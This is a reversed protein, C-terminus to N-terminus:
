DDQEQLQRAARGRALLNLLVPHDNFLGPGQTIETIAKQYYRTFQEPYAKELRAAEQENEEAPHVSVAEPYEVWQCLFRAGLLRKGKRVYIPKVRIGIQVKNLEKIPKDIINVRFDGTRPYLAPDLDFLVRLDDLTKDFYWTDRPNGQKGAFGSYSLALEYFRIAYKSQLKGLDLLALKTYARKMTKIAAALEPNFHMIITDWGCSATPSATIIAKTFWTYVLYDGNPLPIKILTKACETVAAQIYKKTEAGEKSKEIGLALIFDAVPFSIARQDDQQPLLAMAM